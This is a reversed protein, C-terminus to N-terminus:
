SSSGAFANSYIRLPTDWRTKGNVDFVAGGECTDLSHHYNVESFCWGRMVFIRLCKEKGKGDTLVCDHGTWIEGNRSVALSRM